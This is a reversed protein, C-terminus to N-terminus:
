KKKRGKRIKKKVREKTNALRAKQAAVKAKISQQYKNVAAFSLYYSLIALPLGILIGGITLAGLIRPASSVMQKIVAWALEDPLTVPAKLGLLKSGVIYTISYIFPASLPNTIWVGFAASIKSWKFIAAFFVAIPIQIGITPTMGIFIGLAFGLAIERPQGRIKVFREYVRRLLNQLNDKKKRKIEKKPHSKNFM